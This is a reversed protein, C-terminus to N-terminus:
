VSSISGFFLACNDVSLFRCEIELEDFNVILYNSETARSARFHRVRHRSLALSCLSLSSFEFSKECFSNIVFFYNVTECINMNCCDEINIVREAPRFHKDQRIVRRKFRRASSLRWVRVSLVIVAIMLVGCVGSM